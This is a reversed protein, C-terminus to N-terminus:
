WSSESRSSSISVAPSAVPSAAWSLYRKPWVSDKNLFVDGTGTKEAFENWKLWHSSDYGEETVVPVPHLSLIGVEVVM